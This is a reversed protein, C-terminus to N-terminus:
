TALQFGYHGMLCRAHCSHLVWGVGKTLADSPNIIGPLHTLLIQGAKRWDQIAFYQIDIHRSRETPKVANVMKITSENDEHILTPALQAFGLQALVSCLYKAVKASSVAAIFEAETSSTATITSRYAIAGGSLMFCYGTTSCRHRLDNGHASDVYGVLHLHSMTLPFAPLAPDLTLIELPVHSFAPNPQPRWFVLGWTITNRLYKAVDKLRHYHLKAPKIAFKALTTVAYGIDPRTTVYAFLLEGLLSRYSFGMEAELKAHEPTSEAAGITTYLASIDAPNLPEKPRSGLTSEQQTQTEWHHAALLCRIYTESTLKIYDRTQVLDVGNFASVLGLQEFPPTPEGPLQLAKGIADYVETAVASDNTSLAFDDVQRLLLVKHGHLNASYINREHTTATFGIKSLIATIHEEWLRAAEPHGQLAHCVPLVRKRDLTVAFKTKYWEAYADDIRIFTPMKLAPSHAFADQAEGGYISLNFAASLACFLRFIPQEVCSAYTEAM